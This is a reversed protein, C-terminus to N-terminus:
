WEISTVVKLRKSEVKLEWSWSGKSSKLGRQSTSEVGTNRLLTMEECKHCQFVEQMAFRHILQV